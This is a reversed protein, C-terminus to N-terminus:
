QLKHVPLELKERLFVQLGPLHFGNGVGILHQIRASRHTNSFYNLSRQLEGALDFLVPKLAALIKKLDPSKAANRKLHEAKAFTLKLEKTLARTLHNSGMPIPRQWFITAGNSVILYSCDTGLDFLAVCETGQEPDQGADLPDKGLTDYALYNMLAHPAMQVVHVDLKVAKFNALFKNVLDHKM